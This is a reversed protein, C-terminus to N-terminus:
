RIFNFFLPLTKSCLPNSKFNPVRGLQVNEKLILGRDYIIEKPTIVSFLEALGFGNARQVIMNTSWCNSLQTRSQAREVCTNKRGM